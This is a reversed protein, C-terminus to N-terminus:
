GALAYVADQVRYGLGGWFANRYDILCTLDAQFYSLNATKLLASPKIRVSPASSPVYEFGGMAYATRANSFMIEDSHAGLLNKVSVGVYYKGPVQYYIGVGADILTASEGLGALVPDNPDEAIISAKDLKSSMLSVEAGASLNGEGWFMRFAYDLSASINDHYGIMDKVVNLGLGGHLFKVPMDFTFLVDQPTSGAKANANPADLHLGLWQNRYMLAACISGSSGAYGPNYSMRNFMYQSFQPEQAMAVCSFVLAIVFLSLKNSLRIRM